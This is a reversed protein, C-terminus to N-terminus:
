YGRGEEKGEQSVIELVRVFEERTLSKELRTLM